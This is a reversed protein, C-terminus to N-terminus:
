RFASTDATSFPRRWLYLAALTLAVEIGFTWHGVFNLWWPQRIAPVQFVSFPRDVFPALWWIDGVISDLILHIFGNLAFVVVLVPTNKQRARYMWVLSLALMALWVIPFHSPYAHHHHQRHDILHFYIMDLDPALSGALSARIISDASPQSAGIRTALLRGLLYGAPLHGIIM